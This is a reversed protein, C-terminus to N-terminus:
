PALSDMARYIREESVPYPTRLAQAFLSVRLEEIMWRVQRLGRDTGRADPPLGDLLERYAERVRDVKAALQRDRAADRPLRELRREVAALYRAVDDLRGFGTDTVFGRYVLESLQTRIDTLAASLAPQSGEAPPRSRGDDRRRLGGPDSRGPDPIAALRTTVAHATALIRETRRVVDLAVDALDARVVDRLRAFAEPDWAPGGADEILKDAACAVCDDVLDAVSAHPHHSLALKSANSLQTHIHRLPSPVTLLVLRRTGAWMASHQEAETALVRVAVSDSRDVLAPYAKVRHGDRRREVM